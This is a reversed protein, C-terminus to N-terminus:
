RRTAQPKSSVGSTWGVLGTAAVVLWQTVGWTTVDPSAISEHVAAMSGQATAQGLVALIGGALARFFRIAGDETTFLKKIIPIM